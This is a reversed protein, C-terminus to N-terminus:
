AFFFHRFIPVINACVHLVLRRRQDIRCRFLRHRKVLQTMNEAILQHTLLQVLRRCINLDRLLDAIKVLHVTRRRQHTSVTQLLLEPGRGVNVIFKLAVVGGAAM